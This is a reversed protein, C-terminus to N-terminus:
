GGGIPWGFKEAIGEATVRAERSQVGGEAIVRRLVQRMPARYGISSEDEGAFALDQFAM